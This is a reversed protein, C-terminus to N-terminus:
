RTASELQAVFGKLLLEIGHAVDRIAQKLRRADNTEEQYFINDIANRISDEANALLDFEIKM